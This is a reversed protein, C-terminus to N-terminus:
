PTTALRPSTRFDINPAAFLMGNPAHRYQRILDGTVPDAVVTNVQLADDFDGPDKMATIALVARGQQSIKEVRLVRVGYDSEIRQKIQEVSLNLQAMAASANVAMAVSFAIIIIIAIFTAIWPSAFRTTEASYHRIKTM